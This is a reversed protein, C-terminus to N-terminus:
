RISPNRGRSIKQGPTTKRGGEYFTEDLASEADISQTSRPRCSSHKVRMLKEDPLAPSPRCKVLLAPHILSIV